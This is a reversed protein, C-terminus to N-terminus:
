VRRPLVARNLLLDGLIAVAQKAATRVRPEHEIFGANGLFPLQRNTNGPL